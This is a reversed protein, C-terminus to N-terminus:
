HNFINFLKRKNFFYFFIINNKIVIGITKDKNCEIDNECRPQKCLRARHSFAVAYIDGARTM